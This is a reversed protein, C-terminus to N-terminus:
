AWKGTALSATHRSAVAGPPVVSEALRLLDKNIQTLATLEARQAHRAALGGLLAVLAVKDGLREAIQRADNYVRGTEVQAAGISANLAGGLISLLELEPRWRELNEPLRSVLSLGKRAQAEAELMAYRAM